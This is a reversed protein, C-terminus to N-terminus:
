RLWNWRIPIHLELDLKVILKRLRQCPGAPIVVKNKAPLPKGLDPHPPMARPVAVLKVEIRLEKGVKPNIVHLERHRLIFHNSCAADFNSTHIIRVPRLRNGIVTIVNVIKRPRRARMIQDIVVRKLAAHPRHLQAEQHLRRM